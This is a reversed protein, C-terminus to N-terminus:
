GSPDGPERLAIAIGDATFILAAAEFESALISNLVSAPTVLALTEMAPIGGWEGVPDGHAYAKQVRMDDPESAVWEIYRDLVALAYDSDPIEGDLCETLRALVGATEARDALRV